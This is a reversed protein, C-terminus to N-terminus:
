IGVGWRVLRRTLSFLALGGAGRRLEEYGEILLVKRGEVVIRKGRDRCLDAGSMGAEMAM